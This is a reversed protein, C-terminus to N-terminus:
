FYPWFLGWFAQFAQFRRGPSWFHPWNIYFVMFLSFVGCIPRFDVPNAFIMSPRILM